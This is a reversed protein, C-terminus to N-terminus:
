ATRRQRPDVIMQLLDVLVNLLVFTVAIVVTAGQVVRLDRASIATYILAGMGPWSFITEILVAGGLLNGVQLGSTTLVPSAANKIVHPLVQYSRLGKARLLDVFDAGFTEIVSARAVRATVGLTVLSGAILPMALHGLFDRLDGDSGHMGSAPLLKLQASFVIVLLIAVFYSPVSLGSLAVTSILRDPWRGQFVAATTGAIIGLGLGVVASGAALIATNQWAAAILDAVDRRRFPSYGLNGHALDGLWSVYRVPLPRDIGLQQALAERDKPQATEPLLGALPDGPLISLLLFIVLTVGFVTLVGMGLRRLVM